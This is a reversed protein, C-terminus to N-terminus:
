GKKIILLEHMARTCATYMLEDPIDWLAACDYELGKALYLLHTYSVTGTRRRFVSNGDPEKPACINNFDFARLFRFSHCTKKCVFFVNQKSISISFCLVSCDLRGSYESASGPGCSCPSRCWRCFGSAACLQRKYVDVARVAPRAYM